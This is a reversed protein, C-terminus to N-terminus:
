ADAEDHKKRENEIKEAEVVFVGMLMVAVASLVVCLAIGMADLIGQM